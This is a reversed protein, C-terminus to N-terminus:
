GGCRCCYLTQNPVPPVLVRPPGCNLGAGPTPIPGGSTVNSVRVTAVPEGVPVGTRCVLLYESPDCVSECRQTTQDCIQGAPEPVCGISEPDDDTRAENPWCAPSEDSASCMVTTLGLAFLSRGVHPILRPKPPDSRVFM